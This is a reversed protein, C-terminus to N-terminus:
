RAAGRRSSVFRNVRRLIAIWRESMGLHRLNEFSAEVTRADFAANTWFEHPQPAALWEQLRQVLVEGGPVRRAFFLEQRRCLTEIRLRLHEEYPVWRDIRAHTAEHVLSSAIDELTVAPDGLYRSDLQCANAAALYSANAGDLLRVWIRRIHRSFRRHRRPDHRRLVEVAGLAREFLAPADGDQVGIWLGDV